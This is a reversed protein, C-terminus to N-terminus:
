KHVSVGLSVTQEDQAAGSIDSHEFNYDASVRTHPNVVYDAGLGYGNGRDTAATGPYHADHWDASARWDLWDNVTYTAGALAEYDVKATGSGNPGPAGISSTVSGNLALRDSPKYTFSADYLTAVIDAQGADDFRELGVGASAEASLREDWQASVGAMLSYQNGDLRTGISPDAADFVSRGAEADTFLGVVPTLAFGLRLGGGFNWNNQSSNDQLTGDKLLTTGYVERGGNGKLTVSLRGLKQTYSATGSGSLEVPTAAVDSPVDPATPDEQNMELTATGDLAGGWGLAYSAKTGLRLDNVDFSSDGARSLDGDLSAGYTLRPTSRTIEASPLMHTEFREAGTSDSSFAGRLGLSWGTDVWPAEDPAGDAPVWHPQAGEPLPFFTVPEGALAASPLAVLLIAILLPRGPPVFPM